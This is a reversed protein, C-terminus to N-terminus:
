VPLRACVVLLRLFIEGLSNWERWVLIYKNLLSTMAEATLPGSPPLREIGDPGEGKEPRSGSGDLAGGLGM